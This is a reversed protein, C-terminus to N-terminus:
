KKSVMESTTKDASPFATEINVSLPGNANMFDDLVGSAKAGNDNTTSNYVMVISNKEDSKARTSIPEPKVYTYSTNSSECVVKRSEFAFDPRSTKRPNVRRTKM